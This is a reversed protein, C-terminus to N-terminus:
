ATVLKVVTCEVRGVRGEQGSRSNACSERCIYCRALRWIRDNGERCPQKDVFVSKTEARAITESNCTADLQEAM